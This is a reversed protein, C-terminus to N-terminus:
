TVAVFSDPGFLSLLVCATVPCSYPSQHDARAPSLKNDIYLLLLQNTGPYKEDNGTLSAPSLKVREGSRLPALPPRMSFNDRQMLLNLFPVHASSSTRM